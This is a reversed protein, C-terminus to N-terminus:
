SVGRLPSWPVRKALSRNRPVLLRFLAKNAFARLRCPSSAAYGAWRDATEALGSLPALRSLARLQNIHLDHYFSSAVNVVPHPFLDYRSWYGLDWRHVNEALGDLAAAFAARARADALGVGVDRVGWLAFIAGNLVFSPPETPYEEPFWMGDLRARAGGAPADVELPALARRAADAYREEGTAGFVRVLLSAAEGQAMASIWPPRLVFTHGLPRWHLLGGAQPGDLHQCEVLSDACERAGRLWVDGEGAIYREFCGLGRQAAVVHLLGRDPRWIPTPAKVRLDIYYGRVGDADFHEGIPLSFTSASSFFGAYARKSSKAGKVGVAM